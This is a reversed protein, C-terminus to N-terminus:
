RRRGGFLKMALGPGRMMGFMAGQAAFGGVQQVLGGIKREAEDGVGGQIRFDTM